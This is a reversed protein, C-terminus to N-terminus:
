RCVEQQLVRKQANSTRLHRLAGTVDTGIMMAPGMM